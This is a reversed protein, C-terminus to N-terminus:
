DQKVSVYLKKLTSYMGPQSGTAFNGSRQTVQSFFDAYALFTGVFTRNDLPFKAETSEFKVGSFYVSMHACLYLCVCQSTWHLAFFLRIQPPCFCGASKWTEDAMSIDVSLCIMLACIGPHNPSEVVIVVTHAHRLLPALYPM